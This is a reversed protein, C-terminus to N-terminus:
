YSNQETIQIKVFELVGLIKMPNTKTTYVTVLSDMQENEGDPNALIVIGCTANRVDFDLGNEIDSAVVGLLDLINEKAEIKLNKEKSTFDLIKLETNKSNKKTTMTTHSNKELKSPDSPPLEEM